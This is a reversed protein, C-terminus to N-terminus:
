ARCGHLHKAWRRAMFPDPYDWKEACSSRRAGVGGGANEADDGAGDGKERIELVAEGTVATEKGRCEKYEYSVYVFGSEGALNVPIRREEGCRLGEISVERGENGIRLRVDRVEEGLVTVLFEEFEHMVFGSSAGFGFGVHFWHVQLPLKQDAPRGIPSDSIHLIRSIPNRHTRDDLIRVAKLLGETPDVDGTHFLRDIVQLASHKGRSSMRHLAFSRTATAPSCTVLALRDTPRLSFVALAIAQKLLRLHSGNPTVVLVFDVPLHPALCVYLDSSSLSLRLRTFHPAAPAEVPETPDDDDYRASRLSFRRNVRSTAISDDLIRLIPDSSASGPLTRRRAAILLEDPLRPWHTRCIPCTVSGHQVNSAICTLHFSHSCWGTFIREGAGAFGLPELCIACLNQFRYNGRM